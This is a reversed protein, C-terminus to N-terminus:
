AYPHEGYNVTRGHSIDNCEQGIYGKPQCLIKM